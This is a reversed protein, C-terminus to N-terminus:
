RGWFPFGAWVPMPRWPVGRNHGYKGSCNNRSFGFCSQNGRKPGASRCVEVTCQNRVRQAVGRFELAHCRVINKGRAAAQWQVEDGRAKLASGLLAAVKALPHLARERLKQAPMRMNHNDARIRRRKSGGHHPKRQQFKTGSVSHQARTGVAAIIQDPKPSGAPSKEAAEAQPGFVSKAVCKGAQEIVFEGTRHEIGARIDVERFIQGGQLFRQEFTGGGATKCRM